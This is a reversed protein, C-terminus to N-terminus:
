RVGVEDERRRRGGKLVRDRSVIFGAVIEVVRQGQQGVALIVGEVRGSSRIRQVQRRIGPETIDCHIQLRAGGVARRDAGVGNEVEFIHGAASSVVRDGAAGCVVRELAARAIVDDVAADAAIIQELAAVALIRQRAAVFIVDKATSGIIVFQYAAAAFILEVAAVSVVREDALLALVRECAAGARIDKLKLVDVFVVRDGVEDLAHVQDIHVAQWTQVGKLVEGDVLHRAIGEDIDPTSIAERHM